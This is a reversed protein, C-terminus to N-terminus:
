KSEETDPTLMTLVCSWADQKKVFVSTQWEYLRFPEEKYTGASVGKSSLVATQGYVQIVVDETSMETHQVDGSRISEIFDAKTTRGTSGVCVWDDHMFSAINDADNSEMARDWAAAFHLLEEKM